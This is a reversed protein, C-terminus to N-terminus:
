ARPGRQPEDLREPAHVPVHGVSAARGGGGRGSAPGTGRLRWPQWGAGLAALREQVAPLRARDREEVLGRGSRSFEGEPGVLTHEVWDGQLSEGFRGDPVALVVSELEDVASELSEDCADCGCVPVPWLSLAGARVGVGPFGTWGLALPAGDASRPVVEVARIAGYGPFRDATDQPTLGTVTVDFTGALHALLADAVDALPAFREPHTVVSYTDQPPSGSWRRGYRIPTGDTTRFVQEPLPPRRYGSTPTM